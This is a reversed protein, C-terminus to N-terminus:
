RWNENEFRAKAFFCLRVFDHHSLDSDNSAEEMLHDLMVPLPSSFIRLVYSDFVYERERDNM